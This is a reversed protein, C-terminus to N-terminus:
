QFYYLYSVAGTPVFKFDELDSLLVVELSLSSGKLEGNKQYYQVGLGPYILAESVKGRARDKSSMLKTLLYDPSTSRVGDTKESQSNWFSAGMLYYPLFSKGFLTNKYELSFSWFPSGGGFGLSLSDKETFGLELKVGGLGLGGGMSAGVGVTREQRLRFTGEDVNTSLTNDLYQSAEGKYVLLLLIIIIFHKM